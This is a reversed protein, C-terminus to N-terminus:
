VIGFREGPKGYQWQAVCNHMHISEEHESQVLMWAIDDEPRDFYPLLVQAVDRVIDEAFKPNDYAKETVWKEDERKLVPFLPCSAQEEVEDILDEFWIRKNHGLQRLFVSVFSRQNHAGYESIEKSCPCLSTVGVKVGIVSDYNDDKDLHAEFRCKYVQLAEEGSVPAKRELFMPFQMKVYADESEQRLKLHKLLELADGPKFLKDFEALERMFRSLHAGKREPSVSVSMGIEAITQQVGGDRMPLRIPHTVRSVGAHKLAIGREDPRAQVDVLKRPM